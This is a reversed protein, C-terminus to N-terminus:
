ALDAAGYQRRTRPQGKEAFLIFDDLLKGLRRTLAV